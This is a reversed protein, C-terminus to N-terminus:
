SVSLDVAKILIASIIKKANVLVPEMKNEVNLMFEVLIPPAHHTLKYQITKKRRMVNFLLIESLIKLVSVFQPTVLSKASLQLHALMLVVLIRVNKISVLKIVQVNLTQLVNPVVIQHIEM